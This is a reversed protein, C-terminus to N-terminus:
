PVLYAAVDAETVDENDAGKRTRQKTLVTVDKGVIGEALQEYSDFNDEAGVKNEIIGASILLKKIFRQGIEAAQPNTHDVWHRAFVKRNGIRFTGGNNDFETEGTKTRINGLVIALTSGNEKSEVQASEVTMKYTRAPLTAGKGSKQDDATVQLLSM